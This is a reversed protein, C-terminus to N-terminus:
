KGGQVTDGLTTRFAIGDIQSGGRPNRKEMFVLQMNATDLLQGVLLTVDEGKYDALKVKLQPVLEERGISRLLDLDETDAVTLSAWQMETGDQQQITGMQTDLVEVTQPVRVNVEGTVVQLLVEKTVKDMSVNEM